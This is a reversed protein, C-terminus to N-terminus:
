LARPTEAHYMLLPKLTFYGGANAGKDKSAKFGPTSKGEIDIPTMPLM